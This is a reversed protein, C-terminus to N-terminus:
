KEAMGLQFTVDPKQSDLNIVGQLDGLLGLRLELMAAGMLPAAPWFRGYTADPYRALVISPTPVLVVM